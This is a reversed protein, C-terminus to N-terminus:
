LMVELRRCIDEFNVGVTELPAHSPGAGPDDFRHRRAAREPETPRVVADECRHREGRPLRESEQRASARRFEVEHGHPAVDACVFLCCITNADIDYVYSM